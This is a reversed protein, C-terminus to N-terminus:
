DRQCSFEIARSKWGNARGFVGLTTRQCFLEIRGRERIWFIARKNEWSAAQNRKSEWRVRQIESILM